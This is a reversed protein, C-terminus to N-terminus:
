LNKIGDECSIVIIGDASEQAAIHGESELLPRILLLLRTQLQSFSSTSDHNLTNFDVEVLQTPIDPVIPFSCTTVSKRVKSEVLAPELTLFFSGNTIKAARVCATVMPALESALYDIWSLDLITDL